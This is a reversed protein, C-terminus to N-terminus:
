TRWALRELEKRRAPDARAYDETRNDAILLNEQGHSRFTGSQMWRDPGYAEGDRGVVLAELGRDWVQRTVSKRGSELRWAQAKKRIVPWDLGLMLERRLVIGTIRVHPNPYLPYHVARLWRYPRWTDSSMSELSGTAGVIGVGPREAHTMLRDLWGAALPRSYSNLLCVFECGEREVVMRYAALDLVPSPTRVPRHAVVSLPALSKSLQPEDHAGNVAVFLEHERGAEFETYSAVFREVPDPGLPEWVLYILNM